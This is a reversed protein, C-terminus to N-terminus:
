SASFIHIEFYENRTFDIQVVRGEFSLAGAARGDLTMREANTVEFPCTMKLKGRRGQTELLRWRVGVVRDDRLLPESFLGATNKSSFHFLWGDSNFPAPLQPMQIAPLSRETAATLDNVCDLGVHMRFSRQREKGIVLVSDLRNRASRRHWPLGNTLLTVSHDPQNVRVYTPAEIWANTSRSRVESSGYLVPSSEDHWALRSCVYFNPDIPVESLDHLEIQLDAFLDKRRVSLTQTFRCISKGTEPDNLQGRSVIRSETASVRETSVNEAVMDAYTASSKGTPIRVSLRQSAQTQRQDYAQLSRIGGSKPDVM